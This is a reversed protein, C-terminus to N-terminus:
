SGPAWRLTFSSLTYGLSNLTPQIFNDRVMTTAQNEAASILPRTVSSVHRVRDFAEQQAGAYVVSESFQPRLLAGCGLGPYTWSHSTSVPKSLTNDITVDHVSQPLQPDPLTMTVAVQGGRGNVPAKLVRLQYHGTSAKWWSPGPNLNVTASAHGVAYFTSSYWCPWPGINQSVKHTYLFNFNETGLAPKSIGEIKQLVWPGVIANNTSTVSSQWPWGFKVSPLHANIGIVHLAAGLATVALWALARRFIVGLVVIVVTWRLWRPFVRAIARRALRSAVPKKLSEQHGFPDENRDREQPGEARPLPRTAGQGPEDAPKERNDRGSRQIVIKVM